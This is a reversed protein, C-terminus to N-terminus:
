APCSICLGEDSLEFAQINCDVLVEPVGSLESVTSFSGRLWWSGRRAFQILQEIFEFTLGAKGGM